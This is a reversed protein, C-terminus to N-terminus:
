NSYINTNGSTNGSFTNNTLVVKHNTRYSLGYGGSNTITCNTVTGVGYNITNYGCRGGFNLATKVSSACGSGSPKSGGGDILCNNFLIQTDANDLEIGFWYGKINKEYGTFKIPDATTGNAIITGSNDLYSIYFGADTTFQMTVGPDITMKQNLEIVQEIVYPVNIKKVTINNKLTNKGTVEIFKQGNESYTSGADLSGMEGVKIKLASLTNNTFKNNAFASFISIGYSYGNEYDWIGYGKNNIFSCNQISVQMTGTNANDLLVGAAYTGAGADRVTVYQWVNNANVANVAVGFWSGPTATKGELIIPKGATGEMKLGGGGYTGGSVSIGANPGDFQITVGPKITLTNYNSVQITCGVTYDVGDGLDELTAPVNKCDIVKTIAPAVTVTVKYAQTTGDEATVTYSVDKSFDQITGSSPSVKAKNSILITPALAKVNTVSTVTAKITKATEDIVANVAPSLANFSFATIAKATSKGLSITVTYVQTTGDEATVTYSVEKSFDHTAGSAPSITSKDSSTISPVLNALNTGAPLTATITKASENITANVVPNLGKFSFETIAKASSKTPTPSVDNPQKKSCSYIILSIALALLAYAITKLPKM